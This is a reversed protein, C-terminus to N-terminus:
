WSDGMVQSTDLCKSKDDESLHEPDKLDATYCAYEKGSEDKVWIMSQYERSILEGRMSMVNVEYNL